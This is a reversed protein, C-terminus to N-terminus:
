MSLLYGVQSRIKMAEHFYDSSEKVTPKGSPLIGMDGPYRSDLSLKDLEAVIKDHIELNTQTTIKLYLTELNHTRIIPIEFEEM